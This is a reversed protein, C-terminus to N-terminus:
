QKGEFEWLEEKHRVEMMSTDWANPSFACGGGGCALGEDEDVIVLRYSESAGELTVDMTLVQVPQLQSASVRASRAVEGFVESRAWVRKTGEWHTM